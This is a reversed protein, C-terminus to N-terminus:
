KCVTDVKGAEQIRIIHQRLKGGSRIGQWNPSSSGPLKNFVSLMQWKWARFGYLKLSSFFYLCLMIMETANWGRLGKHSVETIDKQVSTLDYNDSDGESISLFPLHYDPLLRGQIEKALLQDPFSSNSAEGSRAKWQEFRTELADLGRKLM